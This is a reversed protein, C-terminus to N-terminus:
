LIKTEIAFMRVSNSQLTDHSAAGWRWLTQEICLQLVGHTAEQQSQAAQSNGIKNIM